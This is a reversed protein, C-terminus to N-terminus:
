KNKKKMPPTRCPLWSPGSSTGSRASGRTATTSLSSARCSRTRSSSKWRSPLSDRCRALVLAPSPARGTTSGTLRLLFPYSDSDACISVAPRVCWQSLLVGIDNALFMLADNSEWPAAQIHLRFLPTLAAFSVSLVPLRSVRDNFTAYLVDFIREWDVGAQRLALPVWGPANSSARREWAFTELRRGLLELPFATESPYFRRGLETVKTAM